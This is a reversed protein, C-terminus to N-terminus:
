VDFHEDCRCLYRAMRWLLAMLSVQRCFWVCVINKDSAL